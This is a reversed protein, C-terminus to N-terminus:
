AVRQRMQEDHFPMFFVRNRGTNKAMYLGKDAREIVDDIDRDQQVALSVGVSISVAIESQGFMVPSGEIAQRIREALMRANEEDIERLLIVFEEGGFRAAKDTARVM